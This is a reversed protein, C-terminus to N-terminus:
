ESVIFAMILLPLFMAVAEIRDLAKKEEKTAKDTLDRLSERQLFAYFGILGLVICAIIKFLSM